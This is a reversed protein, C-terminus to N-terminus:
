LVSTKSSMFEFLHNCNWFFVKLSCFSTFIGSGPVTIPLAFALTSFFAALRIHLMKL